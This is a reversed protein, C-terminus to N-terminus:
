GQRSGMIAAMNRAMGHTRLRQAFPVVQHLSVCGQWLPLMHQFHLLLRVPLLLHLLHLTRLVCLRPPLVCVCVCVAHGCRLMCLPLLAVGACVVVNHRAAFFSAAGLWRLALASLTDGMIILYVVCSGWLDALM